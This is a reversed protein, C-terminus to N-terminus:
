LGRQAAFYFARMASAQVILRPKLVASVVPLEWRYTFHGAKDRNENALFALTRKAEEAGYDPADVELLAEFLMHAFQAEDRFGGSPLVWRKTAAVAHGVLIGRTLGPTAKLDLLEKEVKLMVATNYSWKTKEVKTGDASVNDWMLGDEPDRLKEDAWKYLRVADALYRKDKTRRYLEVAALAAPATSCANKSAKDTERWFVGGGLADSEGSIVFAYTERAKVLLEVKKTADYGEMLALAVWANDDYYRDNAKPVPRVDYGAVPPLDSWYANMADVLELLPAKMAPDVRAAAAYASMLVGLSWNFAIETPRKGLEWEEGYFRSSPSFAEKRIGVFVDHGLQAARPVAAPAQVAPAPAVPAPPKKPPVDPPTTQMALALALATLM